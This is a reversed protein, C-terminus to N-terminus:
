YQFFEGFQLALIPTYFTIYYDDSFTMRYHDEKAINNKFGTFLGNIEKVNYYMKLYALNSSKGVILNNNKEISKPLKVALIQAFEKSETNM